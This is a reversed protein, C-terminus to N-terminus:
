YDQVFPIRDLENFDLLMLIISRKNRGICLQDVAAYTHLTVQLINQLCSWQSAIAIHFKKNPM